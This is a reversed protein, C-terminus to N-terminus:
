SLIFRRGSLAILRRAIPLLAKWAAPPTQWWCYETVAGGDSLRLTYTLGDLGRPPGLALPPLAASKLSAVLKAVAAPDPRITWEEYMSRASLTPPSGLTLEVSHLAFGRIELYISDMRVKLGPRGEYALFPSGSGRNM